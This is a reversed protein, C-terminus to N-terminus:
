EGGCNVLTETRGVGVAMILSIARTKVKIGTIITKHGIVRFCKKLGGLLM